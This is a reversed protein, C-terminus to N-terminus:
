HEESMMGAKMPIVVFVSVVDFALAFEMQLAGSM